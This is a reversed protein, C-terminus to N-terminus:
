FPCGNLSAVRLYVLPLLGAPLQGSRDISAGLQKAASLVEPLHALVKTTNLVYGFTAQEKQYVRQLTVDDGPDEVQQVRAM